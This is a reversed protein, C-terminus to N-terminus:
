LCAPDPVSLNPDAHRMSVQDTLHVAGRNDRAGTPHSVFTVDIRAVRAAEADDLPPQLRMTPTPRPPDGVQEYAYYALFPVTAEGQQELAADELVLNAASPTETYSGATAPNASSTYTLTRIRGTAQDYELRQKVPAETGGSDGFDAYFTVSNADGEVVAPNDYDLCVQSRLQQTVQDMALRGRQMADTKAMVSSNMRLSSEMLGFIAGLVVLGVTMAALVEMLTMGREERLRTM